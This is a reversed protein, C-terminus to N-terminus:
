PEGTACRRLAARVLEPSYQGGVRDQLDFMEAQEDTLADVALVGRSALWEAMSAIPIQHKWGRTHEQILDALVVINTTDRSMPTEAM